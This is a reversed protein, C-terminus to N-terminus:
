VVRGRRAWDLPSKSNRRRCTWRGRARWLMRAGGGVCGSSGRGGRGGILAWPQAKSFDSMARLWAGSGNQPGAVRRSRSSGIPTPRCARPAAVLPQNPSCLPDVCCRRPGLASEPAQPSCSRRPRGATSFRICSGGPTVRAPQAANVWLRSVADVAASVQESPTGSGFNGFWPPMRPSPGPEASEAVASNVPSRSTCIPNGATSGFTPM